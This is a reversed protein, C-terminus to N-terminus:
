CTVDESYEQKGDQKGEVTTVSQTVPLVFLRRIVCIAPFWGFMVLILVSVFGPIPQKHPLYHVLRDFCVTDLEFPPERLCLDAM